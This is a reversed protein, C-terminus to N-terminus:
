KIRSWLEAITAVGREGPITGDHYWKSGDLSWKFQGTRSLMWDDGKDAVFGITEAYNGPTVSCTGGAARVLKNNKVLTWVFRGGVVLKTQEWGQPFDTYTRANRSKSSTLRWAGELGPRKNLTAKLELEDGDRRLKLRITDGANYKQVAEILGKPDPIVKSNIATVVDNKKLGAKEAASAKTVEVVKAGGDGAALRIGLYGGKRKTARWDQPNLREWIESIRAEAKDGRIVGEHYWRDGDVKWKFAAPRGVMWEDQKDFAFAVKELYLEDEVACRGGLAQVLKGDKVLTSVFRGDTVLKIQEVGKPVKKSEKAASSKYSVLRWAGDLKTVDSAKVPSPEDASVDTGALALLFVMVFTVRHDPM